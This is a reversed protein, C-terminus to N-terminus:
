KNTVWSAIVDSLEQTRALQALKKETAEIECDTLLQMSCITDFLRNVPKDEEEKNYELDAAGNLYSGVSYLMQLRFQQQKVYEQNVM